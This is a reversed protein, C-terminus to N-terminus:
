GRGCSSSRSLPSFTKTLSKMLNKYMAQIPVGRASERAIIAILEYRPKTQRPSELRDLLRRREAKAKSYSQARIEADRAEIHKLLSELALNADIGAAELVEEAEDDSMPTALDLEEFREWVSLKKKPETM